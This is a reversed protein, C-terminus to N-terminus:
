EEAGYVTGTVNAAGSSTGKLVNNAASLLIGKEGFDFTYPVGVVLFPTRFLFNAAAASNDEFLISVAASSSISMGMLRIKKGTAPTWVTAISGLAVTGVDKFTDAVRARFASDGEGAKFSGVAKEAM